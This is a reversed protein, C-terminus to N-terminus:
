ENEASMRRKTILLVAAGILLVSGIGYFIRTGIGGTSPLTSGANNEVKLDYVGTATDNKEVATTGDNRDIKFNWTCDEGLKTPDTYSITVTIANKLINYGTPAKIETITYTGEGLGAFTLLGNTGVTGTYTVNETKTIKENKDATVNYVLVGTEYTKDAVMKDEYTNDTTNHYYAGDLAKNHDADYMIYENAYDTVSDNTGPAYETFAGDSLKYYAKDTGTYAGNYAVPTYTKSSAIVTNLKTGSITFEAGQLRNGNDGDVKIINIGTTYVYVTSWPTTGYSGKGNEKDTDDPENDGSYIYNPNNSYQLRAKNYNDSSKGVSAKENLTATYYITVKSDKTYQKFNNFVVKLSTTGDQNATTTVKYWKANGEKVETTGDYLTDDGVTVSKISAYTLGESLMDEVIFHYKTYDAMDPVASTLKFTVEDGIAASTYSDTADTATDTVIEKKLTPVNTVKTDVTTPGVVELLYKSYSVSEAADNATVPSTLYYGDHINNFEAHYKNTVVMTTGTTAEKYNNGAYREVMYGAISAFADAAESKSTVGVLTEAIDEAKVNTKNKYEKFTEALPNTSGDPLTDKALWEVFEDSHGQVSAGWQVNTLVANGTGSATSKDGYFIQYIRFTRNANSSSITLSSSGDMTVTEAFAVSTLSCMCSVLVALATFLAFIRRFVNNRQKM